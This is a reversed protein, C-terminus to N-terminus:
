TGGEALEVSLRAALDANNLILAVNASLSANDTLARVRELLFPTLQKGTVGRRSAEALATEIASDSLEPDL